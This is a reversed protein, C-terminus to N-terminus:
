QWISDYGRENLDEKGLYDYELSVFYRDPYKQDSYVYCRIVSKDKIFVIM